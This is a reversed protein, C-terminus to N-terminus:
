SAPPLEEKTVERVILDGFVATYKGSRKDKSWFLIEDKKERTANPYYQWVQGEKGVRMMASVAAIHFSLKMLQEPPPSSEEQSYQQEVCKRVDNVFDVPLRGDNHKTYFRLVEAMSNAPLAKMDVDLFPIVDFGDPPEVDFLEDDLEEDLKINTWVAMMEGGPVNKLLNDVQILEGTTVDTWVTTTEAERDFQMGLVRIDGLQKEGVPKADEAKLSQISEITKAAIDPGGAANKVQSVRATKREVDVMLLKGAEINFVVYSDGHSEDKTEMRHMGPVLYFNRSRNVVRNDGVKTITSDFSLSKADTLAKIVQAFAVSSSSGSFLFVAVLLSAALGVSGASKIQWPMNRIRQTLSKSPISNDLAEALTEPRGFKASPKRLPLSKLRTELDSQNM